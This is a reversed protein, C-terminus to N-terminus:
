YKKGGHMHPRLSNYRMKAEIHAQLDIGKYGCLDFVRIVIDAIEEEFTGKVIADYYRTFVVNDTEENNYRGIAVNAYKGNRDAEMAESVEGHILCLRTGMEVPTDHFGKSKANEYAEKCLENITKM